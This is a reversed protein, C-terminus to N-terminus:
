PGGDREPDDGAVSSLGSERSLTRSGVPEGERIYCEILTRLLLQARDNPPDDVGQAPETM